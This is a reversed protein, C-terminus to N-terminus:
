CVKNLLILRRFQEVANNNIPNFIEIGVGNGDSVPSRSFKPPRRASVFSARCAEDEAQKADLNGNVSSFKGTEGTEGAREGTM